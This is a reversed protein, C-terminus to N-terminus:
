MGDLPDGGSWSWQPVGSLVRREKFRREYEEDSMDPPIYIEDPLSQIALLHDDGALLHQFESVDVDEALNNSYTSKAAENPLLHQNRNTNVDESLLHGNQQQLHGFESVQADEALHLSYSGKAAENAQLHGNEKTQADETCVHADEPLEWVWRQAGGGFSGGEKHVRVGLRERAVRLVKDTIGASRAEAKVESAPRAGAALAERLFDTAESRTGREEEDSPIALIRGATLTSAGTWFFRGDELTYGIAPGHAALNNKTQVIARRSPDDPDAGVLLVSRAAAAFDISGIGASLAHGGGRSKGLHRVAVVACGQREAIAALPASIARCENARHIDVKGGTYAFLPDIIVLVPGIQAIAAELRLLGVADFTLPEALAHVRSVDAGVADLRPRLTDALGDEASLMLTKGPAFPEAGPLGRGCSVAAALACTLWSKGLGPDGELITLKGLAIYPHWLWRVTEAEVEEMRVVQLEAEENKAEGAPQWEPVSAALERLREATGGANLWDSVDGKPPLGPLELLRVSAAFGRLSAAVQASHNRGPEDNDPIVVVRRGRLHESYEDRWKGAGGANTTAVLGLSALRDADKEGEVIYVEERPDAELLEPLRYLVRRTGNLKYTWGGDGDPKRQLFSKPDFRVAQFLLESSEDRYDYVAVVQRAQQGRGAQRELGLAGAVAEYSCGAHCHLLIRGGDGTSVSLSNRDDDHAPCKATWGTGTRKVGKLKSLVEPASM